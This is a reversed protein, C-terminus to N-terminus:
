IADAPAPFVVFTTESAIFLAFLLEKFFIAYCISLVILSM